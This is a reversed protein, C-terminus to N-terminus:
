LGGRQLKRWLKSGAPNNKPRRANRDKLRWRGNKSCNKRNSM